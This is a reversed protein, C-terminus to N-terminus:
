RPKPLQASRSCPLAAPFSQLDDGAAKRTDFDSTTTEIAARSRASEPRSRSRSRRRRRRHHHQGQQGQGPTRQGLQELTAEKLELGLESSIVEGGTLVAIDRLMEKRRDGFGPAKVAVCTFTGRLKNVVLTTLAEGEVDEAIILLSRAARSSRNLFPCSRRFTPSRRIPSLSLRTM